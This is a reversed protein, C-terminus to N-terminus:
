VCEVRLGVGDNRPYEANYRYRARLIQEDWLANVPTRYNFCLTPRDGGHLIIRAIAERDPHNFINSNTSVLYRPCDLLELLQITTANASGHHSLKLANLKLKQGLRARERQLQKISKELVEAHADGALLVSRGDFEALLAISSGNAASTDKRVPANALLNLDFAALDTVPQLPRKTGLMLKEPRLERLVKKWERGLLELQDPGPSLLTLRMGDPLDFTPLHGDSPTVVPAPYRDDSSSMARNWPLKRERDGILDSFQEGQKISLFQNVQRWGNFWIDRYRLDLSRDAFLPLVGNIHDADIHTLIFLELPAELLRLRSALIDATSAAGGCDVLIRRPHKPDGYEIWLCDGNEAPLMEIHFITASSIITSPRSLTAETPTPAPVASPPQCVISVARSEAAVVGNPSTSRAVPPHSNQLVTVLLKATPVLGHEDYWHRHAPMGLSEFIHALELNGWLKSYREFQRTTNVAQESSRGLMDVIRNAASLAKAAYGSRESASITEDALRLLALESISVYAWARIDDSPNETDIHASFHAATWAALDFPRGLIADLSLVQGLLWHLNAKRRALEWTPGLFSKTARWYETRAEDLLRLCQSFLEQRWAESVSLKVAIRLAAEALRKYGAARLGVCELAYPGRAPLEKDAESASAVLGEYRERPSGLPPVTSGPAGPADNGSAVAVAGPGLEAVLAEVRKLAGEHARRAQWYRLEELREPLDTPFAEYVVISAWDHTKQGFRSHLLLRADYLSVLPHEGRLQGSFFREVLPVSGEVSLPFQSAVVLPIGQDHLDHAVSADPSRVDAVRASECTAIMVVAPRGVGQDTVSALATALHRGSAVEDHLTVGVPSYPDSDDLRGGHALIHVHTFPAGAQAASKIALSIGALTAQEQVVLRDGVSGDVDRWPGIAQILASKHKDVPTDPGAVFLIRPNNPWRMGEASVSRIHRTICVPMRAQLALWGGSSGAGAPVKSLEFPLMALESASLVVRLQTLTQSRETESNLAGSLGPVLSLIEAIEDGRRDLMRERRSRDEAIVQYNLEQLWQEMDRHEYPLTVRGAPADGCVGLYQTLPSLLQNHRPGARLLEVTVTRINIM